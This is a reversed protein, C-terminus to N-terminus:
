DHFNFELILSVEPEFLSAINVSNGPTIKRWLDAIELKVNLKMTKSLQSNIKVYLESKSLGAVVQVHPFLGNIKKNYFNSNMVLRDKEFLGPYRKEIENFEKLIEFVEM